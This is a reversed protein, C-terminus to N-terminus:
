FRGMSKAVNLMVFTDLMYDMVKHLVYMVHVISIDLCFEKGLPMIIWSFINIFM